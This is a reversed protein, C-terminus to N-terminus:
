LSTSRSLFLAGFGCGFSIFFSGRAVATDELVIKLRYPGEIDGDQGSTYNRLGDHRHKSTVNGEHGQVVHQQRM